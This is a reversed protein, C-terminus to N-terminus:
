IGQPCETLRACPGVVNSGKSNLGENQRLMQDAEEEVAPTQCTREEAEAGPLEARLDSTATIQLVSHSSQMM